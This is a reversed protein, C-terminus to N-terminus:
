KLINKYINITEKATKNWNLYKSHILGKKSLLDKLENSSLINYMTNSLEDIDYPNVLLGGDGIVEPMSTINSTITPTGCSIAEVPPLGFGEYFSPYVFLESANYFYPLHDLPIFGPFIVKNEINLEETRKKYIPYSIGKKGAIVLRIDKKYKNVVTSFSEILGLINKRPSFGGVYLIFDDKISYLNKIKEKCINKNLPRYISEGALYTVFIKEKPINLTKIIDNKSYNSVTIIGDCLSIIKPINEHFIKLYRHSVTEPMKYPIVDHLTIVFKCNKKKPLGIGNQPVHYIEIDKNYLINPINVENWFNNKLNCKSINELTFNDNFNIKPSFKEPSFLLFKNKTDIKNLCNILQYTYTGIGTGRYWKAARADIGIKM